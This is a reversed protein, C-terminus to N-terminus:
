GANAHAVAGGEGCFFVMALHIVATIGESDDVAGKSILPALVVPLNNLITDAYQAGSSGQASGLAILGTVLALLGSGGQIWILTDNISDAATKTLTKKEQLHGVFIGAAAAFGPVAGMIWSTFMMSSATDGLPSAFTPHGDTNTSPSTLATLALPAVMDVVSFLKPPEAKDALFGDSVADFPAWVGIVSSSIITLDRQADALLRKTPRRTTKPHRTAQLGGFPQATIGKAVKYALTAPFALIMLAVSRMEIQGLGALKFLEGIIPISGVDNTKLIVEIAQSMAIFLDFMTDVIAKALEFVGHIMESASKLLLPVGLTGADQPHRVVTIMARQLDAFAIAFDDLAARAGSDLQALSSQITTVSDEPVQLGGISLAHKVKRFFWNGHPHNPDDSDDSASVSKQLRRLLKPRRAGLVTPPNSSLNALTVGDAFGARRKDFAAQVASEENTLWRLVKVKEARMQQEIFNNCGDMWDGLLGSLRASDKLLGVVANEVWKVVKMIDAALKNFAAHLVHAADEIDHVTISILGDAWNVFDSTLNIIKNKVDVTLDTVRVAGKKIAHLADHVWNDISSGQAAVGVRNVAKTGHRHRHRSLHARNGDTRGRISSQLNNNTGQAGWIAAQNMKSAADNADAINSAGPAVVQGDPTTAQQLTSGSLPDLFDIKQSTDQAFYGNVQGSPYVTIADDVQDATITLTAASLGDALIALYVEGQADTKVVVPTNGLVVGRPGGDEEVTAVAASSATITVTAGAVPRNWAKDTLTLTVRYASDEQLSTAPLQLEADVWRGSVPDKELTQLLNDDGVVMLENGTSVAAQSTMTAMGPQLPIMPTWVPKRMDDNADAQEIQRLVQLTGDLVVFLDILCSPGGEVVRSRPTLANSFPIESPRSTISDPLQLDTWVWKTGVAIRKDYTVAWLRPNGLHGFEGEHRQTWVLAMPVDTSGLSSAFEVETVAVGGEPLAPYENMKANSDVGHLTSQDIGGTYLQLEPLEDASPLYLHVSPKGDQLWSSSVVAAWSGQVTPDYDFGTLSRAGPTTSLPDGPTVADCVYHFTADNTGDGTSASIAGTLLGGDQNAAIQLRGAEGSWAVTRYAFTTQGLSQHAIQLNKPDSSKVYYVRLLGTAGSSLSTPLTSVGAVMDTVGDADDLPVVLWGGPQTPDRRIQKVVGDQLVVAEVLGDERSYAVVKDKIPDISHNQVLFYDQSLESEAVLQNGLDSDGASVGGVTSPHRPRARGGAGLISLADSGDGLASCGAVAGVSLASMLGLFSRRSWDGASSTTSTPLGFAASSSPDDHSTSAVRTM